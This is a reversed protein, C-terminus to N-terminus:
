RYEEYKEKVRLARIANLVAIIMVGVDAFIAIWMNAKGLAGLLLCVAKVALAFIINSWVISMSKQAINIASLVKNLNDDMLVVDAAEIAADSGLAGMAIGIDARTLVPADNVGDGLFAVLDRGSNRVSTDNILEEIKAVKDGPLLEAFYEDIGLQRAVDAAVKKADGTLMVTKKVGWKKLGTIAHKAMPKIRDSIVLYGAHQSEVAMHVITGNEAEDYCDIGSQEMLKSNGILVNRGDVKASIGYGSIEKLESVRSFDLLNVDNSEEGLSRYKLYAKVISKGIPHSTRGEVLAAIELLDVDKLDKQHIGTVEFVGETVTGTKDFLVYKVKSLAELYNSGKVLIGARSAAGIGAFFTLPISIVLACPCSIVLFTLGRYIWQGFCADTGLLLNIIPPIVALALALLCVVPTYVRAFKSIFNESKSKNSSANEVLDLIKSVTSEGFEKTTRIRLIGSLNICGSIVDSGCTVERPLSEGTLSATNLASSGEVVVGDIPIKEGPNVVIISGVAVEDPDVRSVNIGDGDSSVELNAYDPRIDMLESISKRSKGVAYSQFLEGVQYFLMVAVCERYEGLALAGLTAVTMLFNEDLVQRNLIGKWAKKLIDGGVIIYPIMYAVPKIWPASEFIPADSFIGFILELLVTLVTAIIIQKLKRKQKKNM